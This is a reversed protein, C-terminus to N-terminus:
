IGKKEAREKLIQALYGVRAGYWRATGTDKWTNYRGLGLVKDPTSAIAERLVRAAIRLNDVPDYPNLPSDEEFYKSQWKRNIQGWGVDITWEPHLSSAREVEKRLSAKTSLRKVVGKGYRITFPHPALIKDGDADMGSEVILVAYLEYPDVGEEEAIQTFEIAMAHQSCYFLILGLVMTLRVIRCPQNSFESWYM